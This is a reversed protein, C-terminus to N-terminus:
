CTILVRTNEVSFQNYTGVIVWKAWKINDYSISSHYFFLGMNMPIVSSLYELLVHSVSVRKFLLLDPSNVLESYYSSCQFM